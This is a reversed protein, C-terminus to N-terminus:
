TPSGIEVERGFHDIEIKGIIEIVTMALYVKINVFAVLRADTKVKAVVNKIQRLVAGFDLQVPAIFGKAGLPRM